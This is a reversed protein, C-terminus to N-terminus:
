STGFRGDNFQGATEQFSRDRFQLSLAGSSWDLAEQARHQWTTVREPASLLADLRGSSVTRRRTSLRPPFFLMSCKALQENEFDVSPVVSFAHALHSAQLIRYKQRLFIRWSSSCITLFAVVAYQECWVGGTEDQRDSWMIQSGAGARGSLTTQSIRGRANSSQTLRQVPFWKCVMAWDTCTPDNPCTPQFVAPAFVMVQPMPDQQQWPCESFSSENQLLPAHSHVQSYKGHAMHLAREYMVSVTLILLNCTQNKSERYGEGGQCLEVHM